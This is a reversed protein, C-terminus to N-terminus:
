LMENRGSFNEKIHELARLFIDIGMESSEALPDIVQFVSFSIADADSLEVPSVIVNNDSGEFPTPGHPDEAYLDLDQPDEDLAGYSLPNNSDLMGNHWLQNPSWNGATRIKHDNFLKQYEELAYNIHPIFILHLLFMYIMNDIDLLQCQEMAYFIYYFYHCVCRFVDRWLREIRQNRTSPVAIFSDRGNGRMAVMADCVKVNEVGRDVRIRSPWLGGHEEVATLFLQLVTESLNSSNCKLFMIKRSFGDICGHVVM